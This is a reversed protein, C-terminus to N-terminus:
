SHTVFTKQQQKRKENKKNDGVYPPQCMPIVDSFHERFTNDILKDTQYVKIHLAACASSVHTKHFVRAKKLNCAQCM